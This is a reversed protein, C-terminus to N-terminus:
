ISNLDDTLIRQALSTNRYRKDTTVDKIIEIFDPIPPHTSESDVEIELYAKDDWFPFIDVEYTFGNLFFSHRVKKIPSFGIRLYRSLSTYEEKSIESEVEIRTMDTLSTKFTKIYKSTGKETAERIRCRTGNEDKGEPLELYLQTMNQCKYQPMTELLTVDPYRILYKYEIELPKNM